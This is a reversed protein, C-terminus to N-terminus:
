AGAAAPRRRTAMGLLGLGGILLPLAGPLPAPAVIVSSLEWYGVDYVAASAVSNTSEGVTTVTSAGTNFSLTETTNALVFSPVLYNGRSTGFQPTLDNSDSWALPTPASFSTINSLTFMQDASDKYSFSVLADYWATDTAYAATSFASGGVTPVSPLDLDLTMSGTPTVTGPDSSGAYDAPVWDFTVQVEGAQAVIPLAGLAFVAAIVGGSIRM